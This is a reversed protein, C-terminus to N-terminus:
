IEPWHEELGTLIFEVKTDMAKRGTWSDEPRLVANADDVADRVADLGSRGNEDVRRMAEVGLHSAFVTDGIFDLAFMAQRRTRGQVCLNEAYARFVREIRTPAAPHIYVARNLGPYEECLRWCEDAWLRLAARWHTGPEPLAITAGAADLCAIVLDERSPFLRYIATTVVGLRDAVASLTFRDIGEAVAAAVVDAATFAPKRGVKRSGPVGGGRPASSHDRM